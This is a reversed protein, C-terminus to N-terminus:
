GIQNVFSNEIPFLALGLMNAQNKCRWLFHQLVVPLKRMNDCPTSISYPRPFNLIFNSSTNCFPQLIKTPSDNQLRLVPFFTQLFLVSFFTIISITLIPSFNHQFKLPLIQTLM